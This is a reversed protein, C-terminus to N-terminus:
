SSKLLKLVKELESVENQLTTRRDALEKTEGALRQVTDADIDALMEHTFVKDLLGNLITGQVILANVYGVFSFVSAKYYREAQDITRRAGELEASVTPPETEGESDSLALRGIELLPQPVSTNLIQQFIIDVLQKEECSANYKILGPINGTALKGLVANVHENRLLKLNGVASQMWRLLSDATTPSISEVSIHDPHADFFVDSELTHCRILEELREEAAKLLAELRADIIYERVALRVEDTMNYRLAEDIFDLTAQWVLKLHIKAITEWRETYKQLVAFTFDPSVESRPHKGLWERQRQVLDREHDQMKIPDPRKLSFYQNCTSAPLLEGPAYDVQRDEHYGEIIISRGHTLIATSFARNMERVRPYLRRRRFTELNPGKTDRLGGRDFNGFFDTPQSMHPYTSAKALEVFNAAQRFLYHRQSNETSRAAPFSALQAKRERIAKEVPNLLGPLSERIKGLLLGRLRTRLQSVGWNDPSLNEMKTEFFKKENEDRSQFTQKAKQSRNILFHWGVGCEAKIHGTLLELAEKHNATVDLRTLIGMTRSRAPDGIIRRTENLAYNVDGRCVHLIISKPGKIHEETIKEVREKDEMTQQPGSDRIFQGPLDVLNLDVMNPGYHTIQLVDDSFNIRSTYGAEKNQADNNDATEDDNPNNYIPVGIRKSADKIMDSLDLDDAPNVVEEYFSNMQAVAAKDHTQYQGPIIRMSLRRTDSRRLVVEIPFLTCAGEGVPLSIQAISELVSSKGSNQDGVVVLQPIPIEDTALNLRRLTDMANFLRRTETQELEKIPDTTANNTDNTETNM